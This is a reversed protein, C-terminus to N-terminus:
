ATEKQQYDDPPSLMVFNNAFPKPGRYSEQLTWTSPDGSTVTAAVAAAGAGKIFDRRDM